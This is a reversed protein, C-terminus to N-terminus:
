TGTRIMHRVSLHKNSALVSDLLSSEALRLPTSIRPIKASLIFFTGSTSPIIPSQLRARPITTFAWTHIGDSEKKGLTRCPHHLQKQTATENYRSSEGCQGFHIGPTTASDALVCCDDVKSARSSCRCVHCEMHYDSTM